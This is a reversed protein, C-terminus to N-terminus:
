AGIDEMAYMSGQSIMEDNNDQYVTDLEQVKKFWNESVRATVGISKVILGTRRAVECLTAVADGEDPSRGYFQKFGWNTKAGEATNSNASTPATKPEIEIKRGKMRWRRNCFQQAVTADIGKLQRAVVLEKISFWLYSCQRDYVENAPRNNENTIAREPPAGGFEVRHIMPSWERSIIDALGGGEGTSDLGFNEPLVGRKACHEKVQDALQYHVPKTLDKTNITLPIRETLQIGSGGTTIEGRKAFQLQARDGGGFAPDLAAINKETGGVWTHKGFADHAMLISETLVTQNIGEPAWMGRYMQWYRPSSEGYQSRAGEVSEKTPIHKYINKGEIINPSKEADFRVCIGPKGFKPTTEWEDTEVDVSTWGDKPECFVGFPDFRTSPNGLCICQFDTDGSMLNGIAEFVAEPTDTAEDILLLVRKNHMGAIDALAKQTNGDKVAKAFIASKDDTKKSRWTTQSDLMSGVRPGPITAYLKQVWPWGRRRIMKGTTSTLIVTSNDPDALWWTVAYIIGTTTKSASACAPVGVFQYNCFTEAQKEMWPNWVIWPWLIKCINRFHDYRPLGGKEIPQRRAFATREFVLQNAKAPDGKFAFGYSNLPVPPPPEKAKAM